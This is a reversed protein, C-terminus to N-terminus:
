VSASLSHHEHSSTLAQHPTQEVTLVVGRSALDDIIQTFCATQAGIIEPSIIGRQCFLKELLLRAIATCTYGTTRSMASLQTAEDYQDLLHYIFTEESHRIVIRLAIYDHDNEKFCMVPALVKATVDLVRPEIGNELSVVKDSLFGSHHLSRIYNLHQPFRLMKQSMSQIKGPMTGLLTGLGNYHVAEMMGLGPFDLQEFSDLPMRTCIEGQVIVEAPRLYEHLIDASPYFDQHYLPWERVMPLGGFFCEYDVVEVQEARHGLILNSLGPAIGADIVATVGNEKALMDLENIDGSLSAINVSNIGAEIVTRLTEIGMSPPLAGVVLDADKILPIAQETISLDAEITEINPLEASLSALREPDIDIVTVHHEECLDFAIARGVLGAGQIVIKNMKIEETDCDHSHKLENRANVTIKRDPKLCYRNDNPVIINLWIGEYYSELIQPIEMMKQLLLQGGSLVTNVEYQEFVSVGECVVEKLTNLLQSNEKIIAACLVALTSHRDSVRHTIGTDSNKLRDLHQQLIQECSRARQTINSNHIVALQKKIWLVDAKCDCLGSTIAWLVQLDEGTLVDICHSLFRRHTQMLLQVKFLSLDNASEHATTAHNLFDIDIKYANQMEVILYLYRVWVCFAEELTVFFPGDPGIAVSNANGFDLRKIAGIEYMGLMAEIQPNTFHGIRRYTRTADLGCNIMITQHGGPHMQMFETLDYIKGNILMWWGAKDDNHMVLDTANILRQQAMTPLSYTTFVDMMLRRDAVLRYITQNIEADSAASFRRIIQKIASLVATAFGTKGCIYFSAEKGGDCRAQLLEWLAHANKEQSILSGIRCRKGPEFILKGGQPTAICRVDIDQRSFAIRLQLRKLVVSDALWQQGHLQSTTRTSFFLWNEGSRNTQTRAEIFGQFPSIGTGAAFMVVPRQQDMPLRFRSAPIVLLSVPPNDTRCQVALRHLYSSATGSRTVTTTADDDETKYKLRGVTLQLLQNSQQNLPSSSISYPRFNEPPVLRCLAEREWPMARWLRKVDFHGRSVIQLFDWLEWQDETRAHLIDNLRTEATVVYLKKAIDRTVPRIRAFKLFEYLSVTATVGERCHYERRLQLAKKWPTHLHIPTDPRARLAAITKQILDDSNEPLIGCRDGPQYYIYNGEINFGVQKIIADPGSEIIKSNEPIAFYSHTPLGKYRENRAVELEDNIVEWTKEKFVNLSKFGGNTVARGTKFGVEMFGFTKLQHVGLFGNDGAYADLLQYFINQLGKDGYGLVFDRVSIEELAIFFLHLHPPYWHRVALSEKGKSSSYDKRGLFIDLLTFIPYGAGSMGIEDPHIPGSFYGGGAAKGWISPNVYNASHPNLDIKSYTVETVHQIRELILLLAQKLSETDEAVVAEHARVVASVVPITQMMLEVATRYEIHEAQNGTVPSLLEINEVRLPDIRLPNSLKWNYLVDLSLLSPHPRRLRQSVITWPEIISLPPTKPSGVEVWYYGHAINCLLLAARCLYRDPLAEATANLLPLEDVIDRLTLTSILEPLSVALADWRHHSAPLSQLPPSLPLFGMKESLFGLNEHGFRVNSEQAATLLRRLSIAQDM